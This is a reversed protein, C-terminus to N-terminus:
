VGSCPFPRLSFSVTFCLYHSYDGLLIWRWGGLQNSSLSGGRSYSTGMSANNLTDWLSRAIKMEHKLRCLVPSILLIKKKIKDCCWFWSCKISVNRWIIWYCPVSADEGNTVCRMRERNSPFYLCLSPSPAPISCQPASYAVCLRHLSTFAVM